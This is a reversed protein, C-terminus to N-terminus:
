SVINPKKKMSSIKWELLAIQLETNLKHMENEYMKECKKDQSTLSM